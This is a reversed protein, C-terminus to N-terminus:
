QCTRSSSSRRRSLSWVYAAVARVDADGVPEWGRMPMLKGTKADRRSIGHVVREVIEEFAGQGHIWNADTLDPGADTGKGDPGHCV